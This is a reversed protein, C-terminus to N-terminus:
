RRTPIDVRDGHSPPRSIVLFRIMHTSSNRLRHRRGAPIHLGEGATLRVEQDDVEMMAEGFLMFFFQQAYEHYHLAESTGAPMQEEIVALEPDNLLYWGDCKQGWIYHEANYRGIASLLKRQHGNTPADTM